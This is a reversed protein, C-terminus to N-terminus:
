SSIDFGDAGVEIVDDDGDTAEGKSKSVGKSGGNLKPTDAKAGGFVKKYDEEIDAGESAYTLKLAEVGIGQNPHCGLTKCVMVYTNEDMTDGSTYLQLSSLESFNLYGNQDKDFHEHMARIKDLFLEAFSPLADGGGNTGGATSSEFLANGVDAASPSDNSEKSKHQM